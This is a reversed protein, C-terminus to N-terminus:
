FSILLDVKLSFGNLDGKTKGMLYQERRLMVRVNSGLLSKESQCHKRLADVWRVLKLRAKAGNTAEDALFLSATTVGKLPVPKEAASHEVEMVIAPVQEPQATYDDPFTVILDKARPMSITVGDTVSQNVAAVAYQLDGAWKKLAVLLQEFSMDM